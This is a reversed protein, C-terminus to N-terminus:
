KIDGWMKRRKIYSITSQDLKFMSGIQRQTLDGKEILRRIELIKNKNVKASIYNEKDYMSIYNTKHKISDQVNEKHTGWILNDLRNNYPNGDLHRCEMGKPCPCVFAELVLRHVLFYKKIKNKFLVIHLHGYRSARSPKRLKGTKYNKIKGYNSVQYLGIYKPIDKWIEEM